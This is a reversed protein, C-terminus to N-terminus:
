RVYDIGMRVLQSASYVRGGKTCVLLAEKRTPYPGLVPLWSLGDFECVYFRKPNM